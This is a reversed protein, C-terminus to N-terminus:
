FYILAQHKEVLPGAPKGGPLWEIKRGAFHESTWTDLGDVWSLDDLVLLGGAAMHREANLFDRKMQEEEHWGDVLCFALGASLCAPKSDFFADSKLNHFEGLGHFSIVENVTKKFREIDEQNGIYGGPNDYPDVAILRRKSGVRLLVNAWRQLSGGAYCGIELVAAGPKASKDADALRSAIVEINYLQIPLEMESHDSPWKAEGIFHPSIHKQQAM